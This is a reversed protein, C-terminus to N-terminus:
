KRVREDVPLVSRVFADLEWGRLDLELLRGRRQRCIAGGPRGRRGMCTRELRTRKSDKKGWRELERRLLGSVKIGRRRVWILDYHLCTVGGRLCVAEVVLWGRWVVVAGSVGLRVRGGVRVGRGGVRDRGAWHLVEPRGVLGLAVLGRGIIEDAVGIIGRRFECVTDPSLTVVTTGGVGRSPPTGVESRAFNYTDKRRGRMDM